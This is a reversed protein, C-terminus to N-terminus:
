SVEWNIRDTDKITQINVRKSMSEAPRCKQTANSKIIGQNYNKKLYVDDHNYWLDTTAINFNILTKRFLASFLSLSAGSCDEEKFLTVSHFICWERRADGCIERKNAHATYIFFFSSRGSENAGNKSGKLSLSRRKNGSRWLIFFLHAVIRNGYKGLNRKDEVSDDLLVAV